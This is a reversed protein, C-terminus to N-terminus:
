GSQLPWGNPCVHDEEETGYTLTGGVLANPGFSLTSAFIRVDGAVPANLIVDRGTAM